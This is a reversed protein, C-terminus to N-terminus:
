ISFVYYYFTFYIGIESIKFSFIFIHRLTLSCHYYQPFYIWKWEYNKTGQYHCRLFFLFICKCINDLITFPSIYTKTNKSKEVGWKWAVWIKLMWRSWGLKKEKQLRSTNRKCGHYSNQPMKDHRLGQLSDLVLVKM